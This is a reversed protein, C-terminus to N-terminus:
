RQEIKDVILDINVDDGMNVRIRVPLYQLSPAFWMEATINGRPNAIPRPKLHFAQVPGLRPTQLTVEEAIDYTWLDVQGPRAMWFSVTNGAKLEARGSAFQQSLEVFQSATDQVGQPRAHTRGNMLGIVSDGLTAQRVRQRPLEEMYARPFLGGPQVEGQSTMAVSALFGIDLEVRVQYRAGERQWQVRADGTLPGRYNGSLRYSVRTDAPWSDLHSVTATASGPAATLTATPTISAAPMAAPQPPPPAQTIEPQTVTPTSEVPASPDISEIAPRAPQKRAAPAAAKVPAPAVPTAQAIQRTLMPAVMPKLVAPEEWQSAMWYLALWHGLLVLPVLWAILRPARAM